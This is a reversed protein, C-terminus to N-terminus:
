YETRFADSETIIKADIVIDRYIEVVKMEGDPFQVTQERRAPMGTEADLWLIATGSEQGGVVIGFEFRRTARGKLDEDVVESFNVAQVWDAVGGDAHEPPDGSGIVAINHLLGMRTFGLLISQELEPGRESTFFKDETRWRTDTDSSFLEATWQEDMFKGRFGFRLEKGSILQTEGAIRANIAGTATIVAGIRVNVAGQLRKELEAFTAEGSAALAGPVVLFLGCLVLVTSNLRTGSDPLRPFRQLNKM